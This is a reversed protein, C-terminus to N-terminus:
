SNKEEEDITDEIAKAMDLMEPRDGADRKCREAVQRRQERTLKAYPLSWMFADELRDLELQKITPIEKELEIQMSSVFDIVSEELMRNDTAKRLNSQNINEVLWKARLIRRQEPELDQHELRTGDLDISISM